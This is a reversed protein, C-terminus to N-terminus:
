NEKQKRLNHARAKLCLDVMLKTRYWKPMARSIWALLSHTPYGSTQTELGVTNLAYKVFVEPTPVLFSQKRIKSM